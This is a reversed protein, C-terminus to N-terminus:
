VASQIIISTPPKAMLQERCRFVWWCPRGSNFKRVGAERDGSVRTTIIGEFEIV